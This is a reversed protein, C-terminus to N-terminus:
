RTLCAAYSSPVDFPVVSSYKWDVGKWVNNVTVDRGCGTRYYCYRKPNKHHYDQHYKEADYFHTSALIQTYVEKGKQKFIEKLKNTVEKAVKQQADDTYYIASQYQKSDLKPLNDWIKYIAQLM